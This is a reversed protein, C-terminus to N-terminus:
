RGTSRAAQAGYSCVSVFHLVLRTYGNVFSSSFSVGRLYSVLPFTFDLAMKMFSGMENLSWTRALKYFREFADNSTRASRRGYLSYLAGVFSGISTGGIFDIPVGADHLSKILGIHAIGRAGGGGLM